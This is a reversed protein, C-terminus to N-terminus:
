PGYSNDVAAAPFDMSFGNFIWSFAHFDMFIWSFENLDM